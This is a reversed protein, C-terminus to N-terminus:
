IHQFNSIADVRIAYPIKWSEETLWEVAELTRPTFIDGNEPELAFLINDNKTYINQLAEFDALQPNDDGFFVRYNTDFALFRAGSAAFGAILLTFLVIVWRWKIVWETYAVTKTDFNCDCKVLKGRNNNLRNLFLKNHYKMGKM